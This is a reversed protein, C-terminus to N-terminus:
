ASGRHVVRRPRTATRSRAEQTGRAVTGPSGGAAESDLRARLAGFLRGQLLGRGTAKREEATLNEPKNM